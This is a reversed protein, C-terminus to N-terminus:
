MGEQGILEGESLREAILRGDLGDAFPGPNHAERVVRMGVDPLNRALPVLPDHTSKRSM